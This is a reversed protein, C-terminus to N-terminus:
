GAGPALWGPLGAPRAIIDRNFYTIDFICERADLRLHYRTGGIEVTVHPTSDNDNQHIAAVVRWPGNTMERLLQRASPQAAPSTREALLDVVDDSNIPRGLSPVFQPFREGNRKAAEVIASSIIM